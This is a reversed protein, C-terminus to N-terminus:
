APVEEAFRSGCREGFSVDGLGALYESPTLGSFADFGADFAMQLEAADADTDAMPQSASTLGLEFADRFSIEPQALEYM